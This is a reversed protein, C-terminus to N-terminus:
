CGGIPPSGGGSWILIPKGEKAAKKRAEYVSVQWSIQEWRSEDPGPKILKQLGAFEDPSLDKVAKVATKELQIYKDSPKDQAPATASFAGIALLSAAFLMSPFM